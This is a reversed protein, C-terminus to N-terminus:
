NSQPAPAASRVRPQNPAAAKKLFRRFRHSTELAPPSIESATRVAAAERLRDDMVASVLNPQSTDFLSPNM